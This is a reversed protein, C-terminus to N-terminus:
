PPRTRWTTEKEIFLTAMYLALDTGRSKTRFSASPVACSRLEHSPSATEINLISGHASPRHDPTGLLSLM